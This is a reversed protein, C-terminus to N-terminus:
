GLEVALLTVALLALLVGLMLLPVLWPRDTRAPRPPRRRAFLVLLGATVEVALLVGALWALDIWVLLAVAALLPLVRVVLLIWIEARDRATDVGATQGNGRGLPPDALISPYRARGRACLRARPRETVGLTLM